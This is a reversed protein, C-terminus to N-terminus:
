YNYRHAQFPFFFFSFFFFSLFSSILLDTFAPLDAGRRFKAARGRSVQLCHWPPDSCSLRRVWIKHSGVRSHISIGAEASFPGLESENFHRRVSNSFFLALFTQLIDILSHQSISSPSIWLNAGSHCPNLCFCCTPDRGPPASLLPGHQRPLQWPCPRSSGPCPGSGPTDRQPQPGHSTM